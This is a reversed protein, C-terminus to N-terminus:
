RPLEEPIAARVGGPIDKGHTHPTPITEGTVKNRHPGGVVDVRKVEDFGSPNKSNPQWEAHNTLKQNSDTKFTSHAGEADPDPKLSNAGRGGGGGGSMVSALGEIGAVINAIGGTVAVASVVMVPVGIAAGVGTVTAAGGLVEGGLGGMTAIVGGVIQGIALGFKV